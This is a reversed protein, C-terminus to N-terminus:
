DFCLLKGKYNIFPNHFLAQYLIQTLDLPFFRKRNTVMDWASLVEAYFPNILVLASEDYIINFVNYSLNMNMYKGLFETM